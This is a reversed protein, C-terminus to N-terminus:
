GAAPVLIIEEIMPRADAPVVGRPALTVSLGEGLQQKAALARVADTIDFRHFRPSRADHGEHGTEFFPIQAVRSSLSEEPKANPPLNLYVGYVTGVPAQARVGKILLILRESGMRQAMAGIQPLGAPSQLPVRVPAAGLAIPTTMRLARAATTSLVPAPRCTGPRPQLRDYRYGLGSISLYASVVLSSSLGAANAFTFAQKLFGPDTPNQGKTANWSAWLRDINSHHMWFIPDNGATPVSGMQGGIDGHVTGHLNADLDLCFGQIDGNQSYASECLAGNMLQTLSATTDIPDGDNVPKNNVGLGRPNFLPGWVPDNQKRFQDPIVANSTYDWYPLAFTQDKLTAQIISEFQAVFMRHWPLFFWEQSGAGHAQCTAWAANALACAAAPQCNPYIKAILAAKPSPTWHTYWQFLWGLTSNAPAAKMLGVAKAYKALMAQGQPTRVEYRVRPPAQASLRSVMATLPLTATVALFERRSRKQM